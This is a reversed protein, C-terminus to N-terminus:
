PQRRRTKFDNPPSIFGTMEGETFSDHDLEADECFDSTDAPAPSLAPTAGSAQSSLPEPSYQPAQHLASHSDTESSTKASNSITASAAVTGTVAGEPTPLVPSLNLLATTIPTAQGEEEAGLKVDDQEQREAELDADTLREWGEDQPRGSPDGVKEDRQTLEEFQRGM